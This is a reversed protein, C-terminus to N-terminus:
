IGLQLLNEDELDSVLTELDTFNTQSPVSIFAMNGSGDTKLVQGSTGDTVDLASISVANADILSATIKTRSM